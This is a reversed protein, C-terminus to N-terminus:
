SSQILGPPLFWNCMEQQTVSPWGMPRAETYMTFSRLLSIWAVCRPDADQSTSSLPLCVAEARVQSAGLNRSLQRGNLHPGRRREGPPHELFWTVTIPGHM